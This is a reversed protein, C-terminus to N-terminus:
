ALHPKRKPAFRRETTAAIKQVSVHDFILLHRPETQTERHSLPAPLSVSEAIPHVASKLQAFTDPSLGSNAEQM